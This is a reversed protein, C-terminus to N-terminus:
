SDLRRPQRTRTQSLHMLSERSETMSFDELRNEAPYEKLEQKALYGALRYQLDYAADMSLRISTPGFTLEVSGDDMRELEIKATDNWTPLDKKM